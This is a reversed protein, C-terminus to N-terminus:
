VAGDERNPGEEGHFSFIIEIVFDPAGCCGAKDLKTPDCVVTIDPQVVTKIKENMEGPHDPLRVDFPAHFARCKKGRLFSQIQAALEISIAQHLSSPAPTMNYASGDIVEWREDEPWTLYDGYTFHQKHEFATSM